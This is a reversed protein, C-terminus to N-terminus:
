MMGAMASAIQEAQTAIADRAAADDRLTAHDVALLKERVADVMEDLEPDNTLNLMPLLDCLEQTNTMISEHLPNSRKVKAEMKPTGDDNMIANGKRDKAPAQVEEVKYARLREAMHSVVGHLRHYVDGMAGALRAENRRQVDDAIRQAEADSMQVRFDNTPLQSVEPDFEYLAALEDSTPYDEQKFLGGLLLRSQEVHADFESILHAVAAEWELKIARMESQYKDFAKAPLIRQGNENWPLTLEKHVKRAANEAKKIPKLVDKTVLLKSFRGMGESAQHAQLTYNTAEDDFKRGSWGKIRLQALMAKEGLTKAKAEDTAAPAETERAPEVAFGAATAAAATAPTSTYFIATSKKKGDVDVRIADYDCGALDANADIAARLDITRSYTKTTM